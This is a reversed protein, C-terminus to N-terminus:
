MGMAIMVMVQNVYYVNTETTLRFFFILNFFYGTTLNLEKLTNSQNATLGNVISEAFVYDQWYQIVMYISYAPTANLFIILFLLIAQEPLLNTNMQIAYRFVRFTFFILLFVMLGSAVTRTIGELIMLTTASTFSITQVYAQLVAIAIMIIMALLIVIYQFITLSVFDVRRLKELRIQAEVKGLQSALNGGVERTDAEFERLPAKAFKKM